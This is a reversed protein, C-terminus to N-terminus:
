ANGKEKKQRLVGGHERHHYEIKKVYLEVEADTLKEITEFANDLLAESISIISEGTVKALAESCASLSNLNILFARKHEIDLQTYDM